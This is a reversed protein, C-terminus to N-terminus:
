INLVLLALVILNMSTHALASATYNWRHYIYGLVLGGIFTDAIYIFQPDFHAIGFLAAAIIMAPIFAYKPMRKQLSRTLANQVFGRFAFEECIGALGLAVAVAILGPVSNSLTVYMQNTEQVAQSPGLLATLGEAVAENLLIMLAGLGVGLALYKPKFSINVYSKVNVHAFRLYAYPVVLFLLEGIILSVEILGSLYFIGGVFASLFFTVVFVLGVNIVSVPNSTPKEL